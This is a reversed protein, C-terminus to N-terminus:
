PWRVPPGVTPPAPGVPRAPSRHGQRHTIGAPQGAGSRARKAPAGCREARTAAGHAPRRGPPALRAPGRGTRARPARVPDGEFTLGALHHGQHAAVAGALGREQGMQGTQALRRAPVDAHEAGPRGVHRGPPQDRQDAENGLVGPGEEVALRHAILAGGGIPLGAEVRPGRRGHELLDQGSHGPVPVGAVQGLALPQGQGQGDNQGRTRRHDQEVLGGPPQVVGALLPQHRHHPLQGGVPVADHHGGVVHLQHGLQGGPGHHQGLALHHGVSRGPVHHAVRRDESGLYGLDQGRLRPQRHILHAVGQSGQGHHVQVRRPPRGDDTEAWTRRRQKRHGRQDAHRGEAPRQDDVAVGGAPWAWAASAGHSNTAMRGMSSATTIPSIASPEKSALAM